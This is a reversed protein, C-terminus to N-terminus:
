ATENNEELVLTGCLRGAYYTSISNEEHEFITSLFCVTHWRHNALLYKTVEPSWCDLERWMSMCHLKVEPMLSIVDDGEHKALELALKALQLLGTQKNEHINFIDVCFTVLASFTAFNLIEMLIPIDGDGEDWFDLWSQCYPQYNLNM